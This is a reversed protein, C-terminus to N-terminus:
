GAASKRPWEGQYSSESKPHPITELTQQPGIGMGIQAMRERHRIVIKTVTIVCVVIAWAIAVAGVVSITVIWSTETFLQGVDRLM